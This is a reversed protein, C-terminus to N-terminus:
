KFSVRCWRMDERGRRLGKFGCILGAFKFGKGEFGSVGNEERKARVTCPHRPWGEGEARSNGVGVVRFGM